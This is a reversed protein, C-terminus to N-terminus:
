RAAFHSAGFDATLITSYAISKAGCAGSHGGKTPLFQDRLTLPKFPCM